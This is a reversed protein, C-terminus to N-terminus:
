LFFKLWIMDRIFDHKTATLYVRKTLNRITDPTDVSAFMFNEKGIGISLLEDVLLDLTDLGIGRTSFLDSISIGYKTENAEKNFLDCIRTKNARELANLVRVGNKNDDDIVERLSIFLLDDCGTDSIMKTNYINLISIVEDLVYDDSKRLMSVIQSIKRQKAACNSM